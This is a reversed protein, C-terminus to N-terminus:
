KEGFAYIVPMNFHFGDGRNYKELGNFVDSKFEKFVDCGLKKIREFIGRVANTCMEQWWEEKDRYLVDSDEQIM